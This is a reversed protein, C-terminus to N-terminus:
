FSKNVPIYKSIKKAIELYLNLLIAIIEVPKEPL